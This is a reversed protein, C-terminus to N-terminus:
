REIGAVGAHYTAYLYVPIRLGGLHQQILPKVRSWDLAGVGTALRPLALSTPKEQEVFQHLAKLAHGVHKESAPGPTGGHHGEVPDQTFLSVIRVGDPGTWAWLTGAKPHYTQCFHRFDKYLAPARTRLALALGHSFPDNPAVGHAIVAAKSLLLDGEIEQIM